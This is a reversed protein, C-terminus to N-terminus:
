VRKLCQNIYGCFCAFTLSLMFKMCARNKKLADVLLLAAKPFGDRHPANANQKQAALDDDSRDAFHDSHVGQSAEPKM